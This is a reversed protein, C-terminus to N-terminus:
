NTHSRCNRTALSGDLYYQLKLPSSLDQCLRPLSPIVEVQAARKQDQWQHPITCPFKTKIAAFSLIPNTNHNDAGGDRNDYLVPFHLVYAM